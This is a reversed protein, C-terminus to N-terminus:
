FKIQQVKYLIIGDFILILLWRTFFSYWISRTQKYIFGLFLALLFNFLIFKLNFLDFFLAEFGVFLGAQIFLVVKASFITEFKNILFRRFFFEQSILVMPVLFFNIFLIAGWDGLFWDLRSLSNIKLSSSFDFNIIMSLFIVWVALIQVCVKINIKDRAELLVEQKKFGGELIFFPFILFFLVNLIVTEWIGNTNLSNMLFGFGLYVLLIEVFIKLVKSKKFKEFM